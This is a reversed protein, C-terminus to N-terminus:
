LSSQLKGTSNLKFGSQANIRARARFAYYVTADCRKAPMPDIYIINTGCYVNMHDYAGSPSRYISAYRELVYDRTLEIM